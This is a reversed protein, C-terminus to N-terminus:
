ALDKQNEIVRSAIGYAIAEDATMWHDREIDARGYRVPYRYDFRAQKLIVTRRTTLQTASWVFFQSGAAALHDLRYQGGIVANAAADLLPLLDACQGAALALRLRHRRDEEIRRVQKDSDTPM